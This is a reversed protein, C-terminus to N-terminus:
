DANMHSDWLGTYQEKLIKIDQHFIERQEYRADGLNSPFEVLHSNQLFIQFCKSKKIENSIMLKVKATHHDVTARKKVM